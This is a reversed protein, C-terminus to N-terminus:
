PGQQGKPWRNVEADGLGQLTWAHIFTHACSFVIENTKYFSVSNRLKAKSSNSLTINEYRLFRGVTLFEVSEFVCNIISLM